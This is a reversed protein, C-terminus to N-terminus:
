HGRLTTIAVLAIVLSPAKAKKGFLRKWLSPKADFLHLCFQCKLATTRVRESCAPCDKTPVM